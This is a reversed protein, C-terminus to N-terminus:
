IHMIGWNNKLSSLRCTGQDDTMTWSTKEM